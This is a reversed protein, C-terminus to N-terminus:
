YNRVACDRLWGPSNNLYKKILKWNSLHQLVIIPKRNEVPSFM